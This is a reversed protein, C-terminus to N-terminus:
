WRPGRPVTSGQRRERRRCRLASDTAGPASTTRASGGPRVSCGLGRHTRCNPWSRGLWRSPRQGRLHPAQLHCRDNLTAHDAGRHHALHERRRFDVPHTTRAQAGVSLMDLFAQTETHPQPRRHPRRQLRGGAPGRQPGPHDVDGGPDGGGAPPRDKFSQEVFPVPGVGVADIPQAMPALRHRGASSGKQSSRPEMAAEGPDDGSPIRRRPM